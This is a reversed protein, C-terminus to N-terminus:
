PVSSKEASIESSPLLTQKMEDMRENLPRLMFRLTPEVPEPERKFTEILSNLKNSIDQQQQLITDLVPLAENIHIGM